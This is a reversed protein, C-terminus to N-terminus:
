GKKISKILTSSKKKSLKKKQSRTMPSKNKGGRDGVKEPKISSRLTRRQPRVEVEISNM